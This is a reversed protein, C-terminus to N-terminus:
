ARGFFEVLQPRGTAALLAVDSPRFETSRQWLTASVALVFVAVLATMALTRNSRTV